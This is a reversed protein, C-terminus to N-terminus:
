EDPTVPKTLKIPEDPLPAGPKVTAAAETETGTGARVAVSDVEAVPEKPKAPETDVSVKGKLKRFTWRSFDDDAEFGEGIFVDDGEVVKSDVNSYIRKIKRDWFLQQSFLTRGESGTAVVNGKLEWLDRKTWHLAYDASISSSEMELSDYSVLEIGKRYEEFPEKAFEYSELLQTYFRQTRSGNKSTIATMNEMQRSIVNEEDVPEPVSAASCSAFLVAGGLVPLAILYKLYKM